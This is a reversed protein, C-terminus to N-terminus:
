DKYWHKKISQLIIRYCDTHTNSSPESEAITAIDDGGKYGRGTVDKM